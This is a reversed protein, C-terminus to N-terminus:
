QRRNILTERTNTRKRISKHHYEPMRASLLLPMPIKLVATADKVHNTHDDYQRHTDILTQVAASIEHTLVYMTSVGRAKFQYVSSATDNKGNTQHSSLM